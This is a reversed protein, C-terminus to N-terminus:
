SVNWDKENDSFERILIKSLIDQYKGIDSPLFESYIEIKKKHNFRRGAAHIASGCM